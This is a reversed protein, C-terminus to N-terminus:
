IYICYMRVNPAILDCVLVPLNLQTDLNWALCARKGVLQRLGRNKKQIQPQACEALLIRIRDGPLHKETHGEVFMDYFHAAYEVTVEIMSTSSDIASLSDRLREWVGTLMANGVFHKTNGGPRSAHCLILEPKRLVKKILHISSPIVYEGYKGILFQHLKERPLHLLFDHDHLKFYANESRIKM